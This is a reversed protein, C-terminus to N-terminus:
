GMFSLYLDGERLSVVIFFSGSANFYRGVYADLPKSPESRTIGDVLEEYIREMRSAGMDATIKALRTYNHVNDLNDLLAEILLDSIYRSGSNLSISNALVM